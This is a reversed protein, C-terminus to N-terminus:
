PTVPPEPPYQSAVGQLTSVASALGDKVLQVDAASMGTSVLEVLSAIDEALNTTAANIQGLQTMIEDIDAMIKDVKGELRNMQVIVEKVDANIHFDAHEIYILAM